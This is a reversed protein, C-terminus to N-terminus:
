SGEGRVASLNVNHHCTAYEMTKDHGVTVILKDWTLVVPNRLIDRLHSSCVSINNISEHLEGYSISIAVKSASAHISEHLAGYSMSMAVKSALNLTDVLELGKQRKSLQIVERASPNSTKLCPEKNAILEKNKLIKKQPDSV